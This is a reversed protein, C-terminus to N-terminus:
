LPKKSQRDTAFIRCFRRSKLLKGIKEQEDVVQQAIIVGDM